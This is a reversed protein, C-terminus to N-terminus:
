ATIWENDKKDENNKEENDKNMNKYMVVFESISPKQYDYDVFYYEDEFEGYEIIAQWTLEDDLVQKKINQQIEDWESDSIFVEDEEGDSTKDTKRANIYQRKSKRGM